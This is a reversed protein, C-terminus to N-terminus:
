QGSNSSSAEGGDSQSGIESPSLPAGPQIALFNSVVIMEGPTLGEEVIRMQDEVLRGLTVPRMEAVNGDGVVWVFQRSQDFQIATDPILVAEFPDRGYLRLHGFMGPTLFGDKNEVVARGQITATSADITNDVFDMVGEIEYEDQDELKILVPNRKDRSSEREGSLALRSYNLYDQESATFVFHIPDISVITTLLSTQATVLNGKNILDRSLRGDLPARIDTFELNLEAQRLAAEASAVGADAEQKAQLRREYDEQSVARSELLRKSRALESDALRQGTRASELQAEARAVEAEFPRPDITFLPDGAKVFSGDEFHVAELYGSVRPRIDVRNVAEFRGIYEDWITVEKVTPQRVNVPLAGGQANQEGSGSCAALVMAAGSAFILTRACSRPSFVKFM